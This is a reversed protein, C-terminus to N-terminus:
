KKKKQAGVCNQTDLAEPGSTLQPFESVEKELQDEVLMQIVRCRTENLRDTDYHYQFYEEWVKAWDIKM